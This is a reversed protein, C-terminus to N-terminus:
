RDDHSTFIFILIERSIQAIFTIEAHNWYNRANKYAFDSFKRLDQEFLCSVPLRHPLSSSHSMEFSPQACAYFRNLRASRVYLRLSCARLPPLCSRQKLSPLM